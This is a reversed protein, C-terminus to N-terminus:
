RLDIVISVAASARAQPLDSTCLRSGLSRTASVTSAAAM